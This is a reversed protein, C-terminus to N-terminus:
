LYYLFSLSSTASVAMIANATKYRPEESNRSLSVIIKTRRERDFFYSLIHEAHTRDTKEFQGESTQWFHQHM